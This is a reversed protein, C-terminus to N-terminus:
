SRECNGVLKITQSLLVAFEPHNSIIRHMAEEANRRIDPLSTLSCQKQKVPHQLQLTHLTHLESNVKKLQEQRSAEVKIRAMQQQNQYIYM